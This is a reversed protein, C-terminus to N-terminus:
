KQLTTRKSKIMLYWMSHPITVIWVVCLLTEKRGIQINYEKNKKKPGSDDVMDSNSEDESSSESDEKSSADDLLIEVASTSVIGM